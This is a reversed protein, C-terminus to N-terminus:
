NLNYCASNFLNGYKCYNTCNSNAIEYSNYNNKTLPCYYSTNSYVNGTTITTCKNYADNYSTSEYNNISCVYKTVTSVDGYVKKSCNSCTKGSLSCSCDATYTETVEKSCYNKCSFTNTKSTTCSGSPASTDDCEWDDKTYGSPCGNNTCTRKGGGYSGNVCPYTDKCSGSVTKHSTYTSTCKTGSRTDGSDCSYTKTGRVTDYCNSDATTKDTYVENDLDCTYTVVTNPTVSETKKCNETALQNSEYAITNDLSCYYKTDSTVTANESDAINLKKTITTSTNGAEDKVYVKVEKDTVRTTDEINYTANGKSETETDYTLYYRIENSPTINDTANNAILNYNNDFKFNEEAIEPITKDIYLPDINDSLCFTKEEDKLNIITICFDINRGEETITIINDSKTYKNSATGNETLQYKTETEQIQEANGINLEVSVDGIYWKDEGKNGTVIFDITVENNEKCDKSNFLLDENTLVKTTKNRALMISTNRTITKGDIETSLISEKLFGKDILRGVTACVYENEDSTGNTFWLRDERKFEEVYNKASTKINSISLSNKKEKSISIIKTISVITVTTILSVILITVLLEILTFGKRERKKM